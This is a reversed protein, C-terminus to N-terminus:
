RTLTRSSELLLEQHRLVCVDKGAYFVSCQMLQLLPSSIVDIDAHQFHCEEM